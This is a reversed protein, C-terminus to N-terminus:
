TTLITYIFAVMENTNIASDFNGDKQFHFNKQMMSSGYQVKKM